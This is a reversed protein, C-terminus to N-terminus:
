LFFRSVNLSLPSRFSPAVSSKSSHLFFSNVRMVYAHINSVCSICFMLGFKCNLFM